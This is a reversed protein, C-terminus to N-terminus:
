ANDVAKGPATHSLQTLFLAALASVLVRNPPAPTAFVPKVQQAATGAGAVSLEAAEHAGM